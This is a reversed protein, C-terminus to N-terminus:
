DARLADSPDTRAARRAPVLSAVLAVLLLLTSVLLLIRADGPQVEFLLSSLSRSAILSGAIGIAIGVLTLRVSQMVVMRAVQSVRAGLAMRVGIEARRTGVLYAIVGYLGVASLFLAMVAAIGLLLLTFSGRAVADSSRIVDEMTRMNALPVEPDMSLVIGRITEGISVPIASATRVVFHNVSGGSTGEMPRPPYYIAEVAPRDLGEARVDNAVGTVRYWPPGDRYSIVGKGIPDEGPWMRNAFARSVVAMGAARDVDSWSFSEGSVAIGMADFYGPEVTIAPMCPPLDSSSYLKGEITTYVCGSEGSLPLNMTASVHTVGPVALIRDTLERRFRLQDDRTPYRVSPPYVQFTLVNDVDIGSEVSRLNIFSQLMLGGATLLILALGVQAVVLANRALQRERSATMGRGSERLESFNTRSRLVPVLGFVLAMLLAAGGAFAVAVPSLSLEHLRPVGPPSLVVLLRVGVYALLVGVGASTLGLLASETLYQVAFHSREAGMAARVAQERRRAEARVLYLNGVNAAAILLVVSVAGLLIWLVRDIRGLVHARMTTVDPAFGTSEYWADSYVRPFEAPMLNALRQLDRQAAEPTVDPRLRAYVNVWHANQPTESRDLKMPTWVQVPSMPLRVGPEVVGVVTAPSANLHITRGIIGPDGGYRSQWLEHSILVVRDAGPQDEADTFLRGRLARVNLMRLLSASVIAGDVRDAEGDGSLSQTGTGYAGIEEFAVSRDSYFFYSAVSNGWKQDPGVKPVAHRLLVLRDPEPYPLPRLVISDVLTFIATTAGIGLGLTLVAVVTFLPSRVLSRLAHRTERRVTDMVEMRRRERRIGREIECTEVRFTTMDGFRSGAEERADAPSMGAVEFEAARLELHLLLEEDVEDEISAPRLLSRLERYRDPMWGM